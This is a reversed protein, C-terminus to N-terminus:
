YLLKKRVADKHNTVFKQITKKDSKNQKIKKRGTQAVLYPAAPRTHLFYVM